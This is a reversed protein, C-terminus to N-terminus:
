EAPMAILVGRGGALAPARWTSSSRRLDQISASRASPLDWFVRSVKYQDLVQSSTSVQTKM